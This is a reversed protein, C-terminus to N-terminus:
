RELEEQPEKVRELRREAREIAVELAEAMRIEIQEIKGIVDALLKEAKDGCGAIDRTERLVEHTLYNAAKSYEMLGQSVLRGILFAEREAGVKAPPELRSVEAALMSELASAKELYGAVVLDVLARNEQRSTLSSRDIQPVVVAPAASIARQRDLLDDPMWREFVAKNRYPVYWAKQDKDWKAGLEKAQDKEDFPVKLFVKTALDAPLGMPMPEQKRSAVVQLKPAERVRNGAADLGWVASVPDLEPEKRGAITGWARALIGGASASNSSASM